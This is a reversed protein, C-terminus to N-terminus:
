HRLCEPPRHRRRRAISFREGLCVHVCRCFTHGCSNLTVPIAMLDRCIGCRLVVEMAALTRCLVSDSGWQWEGEGGQM